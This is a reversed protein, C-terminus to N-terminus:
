NWGQGPVQRYVPLTAMRSVCCRMSHVRPWSGNNTRPIHYVSNKESEERTFIVKGGSACHAASFFTDCRGDASDYRPVIGVAGDSASREAM